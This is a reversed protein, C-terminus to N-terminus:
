PADRHIRCASGPIRVHQRCPQNNKTRRGCRLGQLRAEFERGLRGLQEHPPTSWNM